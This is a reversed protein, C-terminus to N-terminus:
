AKIVFANRKFLSKVLSFDVQLSQGPVSVEKKRQIKEMKIIQLAHGLVFFTFYKINEKQKLTSGHQKILRVTHTSYM